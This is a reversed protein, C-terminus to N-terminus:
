GQRMAVWGRVSNILWVEEARALDAAHLVREQIQGAALLAARLTGPLLGSRVPPSVYAGGLRLVVNGISFECLEGRENCLLVDLGGAPLHAARAAEYVQRQTTKHYLWVSGSHLANPALAFGQAAAADFAPPQLDLAPCAALPTSSVELAGSPHLVSRVRLASPASGGAGARVVEAQLAARWAAADFGWGFYAASAALRAEHEPLLWFDRGTWLLTEILGFDQKQQQLFDMQVVRTKDLTEQWEQAAVSDWTIGAGAHYRARGQRLHMTRIAVSATVSGDPRLLAVTGCYVGRPQPELRAIWQMTQRKPAGTISGCPFLARLLEPLGVEAQTQASIRSVMQWVSPYARLGLLEQVQVSGVEAIQGLDNRLLDVIMVNEARDKASAQLDAALQADAEPWLGRPRTGKMPEVLVGGGAAAGDWHFFLEPSASLVHGAEPGGGEYNFLAMFPAQQARRLAAYLAAPDGSFAAEFPLTHNVQYTEGAAIAAHIQAMAAAHEAESQAAQWPGLAFDGQEMPLAAAAKEAARAAAAEAQAADFVAFWLLPEEAQQAAAPLEANLAAGAEYAMFGAAWYGKAQWDQLEQWKQAVEAMSHTQVVAHAQTLDFAELAGTRPHQFHLQLSAM